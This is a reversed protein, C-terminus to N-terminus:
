DVGGHPPRCRESKKVNRIIQKLGRGRAPPSLYLLLHKLLEQPKM